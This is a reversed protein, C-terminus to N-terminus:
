NVCMAYKGEEPEDGFTFLNDDNDDARVSFLLLAVIAPILLSLYMTAVLSPNGRDRFSLLSPLSERSGLYDNELERMADLEDEEDM